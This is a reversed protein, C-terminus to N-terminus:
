QGKTTASCCGEDPLCVSPATCTGGESDELSCAVLPTACAQPQGSGSDQVVGSDGESAGSSMVVTYFSFHTTQATLFSGDTSSGSVVTWTTDTDEATLLMPTGSGSATYPIKVTVAGAFTQGAPEFSFVNGASTAGSPLAPFGTAEVSLTVQISTAVANAPVDVEVSDPGVLDQAAPGVTFTDAENNTTANINNTKCAVGLLAICFVSAGL